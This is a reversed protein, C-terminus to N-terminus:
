KEALQAALDTVENVVYDLDRYVLGGHLERGFGMREEFRAMGPALDFAHNCDFGLWWVHDPRGPAAIHCISEPGEQEACSNAFTLGGHVSVDSDEYDVGHLPHDPPLGVYGCLAGMRNRVILCDLRTTPDIWQVKDPEDNWPGDGLPYERTGSAEAEDWDAPHPRKWSQFNQYMSLRELVNM